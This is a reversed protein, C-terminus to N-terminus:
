SCNVGDKARACGNLDPDLRAISLSEIGLQTKMVERAYWPLLHGVHDALGPIPDAAQLGAHPHDELGAEYAGPAWVAPRAPVVDAFPRRVRAARRNRCGISSAMHCWSASGPAVSASLGM